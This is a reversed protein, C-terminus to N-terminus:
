CLAAPSPPRQPLPKVAKATLEGCRSTSAETFRYDDLRLHPAAAAPSPYNRASARCSCPTHAPPSPCSAGALGRRVPIASRTVGRPTDVVVNTVGRTTLARHVWFGDRGAEYGSIVPAERV